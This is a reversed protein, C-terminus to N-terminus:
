KKSPTSSYDRGASMGAPAALRPGDIIVAATSCHM